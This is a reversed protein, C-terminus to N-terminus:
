RTSRYRPRRFVFAVTMKSTLPKSDLRAPEFKWRKVARVAEPTLSVIERLAKVVEAKGEVNIELQLVVTGEAVSALPYRPYAAQIIQPPTFHLDQTDENPHEALQALSAPPPDNVAPDFVVAIATRSRTPKGGIHAPLFKWGKVARIAESTLSVIGRDVMVAEVQGQTEITVELVVIGYAVSNAPYRVEGTEVIQAQQFPLQEVAEFPGHALFLSASFIILSFVSVM